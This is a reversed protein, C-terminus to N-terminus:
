CGLILKGVPGLAFEKWSDTRQIAPHRKLSDSVLMGAYEALKLAHLRVAFNFIKQEREKAYYAAASVLACVQDPKKPLAYEPDDLAREADLKERLLQVTAALEIATGHGIAGALMAAETGQQLGLGLITSAHNWSRPCPYAEGLNPSETYLNDPRQRIYSIVAPHVNNKLGWEIWEQSEPVLTVSSLCRSMITSVVAHSGARDTRRNCAIAFVVHDPLKHTGSQRAHILHAFSNQVAPAAQAFDDLFWVTPKTSGLARALDEKPLMVAKGSAVDPWMIGGADTPDCVVPHSVILDANVDDAAQGVIATKGIGPAGEIMIPHSNQFCKGLVERLDSQKM